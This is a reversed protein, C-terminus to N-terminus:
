SGVENETVIGNLVAYITLGAITKIGLKATINKRHTVVTHLSIHLERSIEKNTKGLAVQRLIQRERQSIEGNASVNHYANYEQDFLNHLKREIEQENDSTKLVLSFYPTLLDTKKKSGICVIHKNKFLSRIKDLSYTTPAPIKNFELIIALVNAPHAIRYLAAVSPLPDFTITPLIKQLVSKIAITYLGTDGVILIREPKEPNGM